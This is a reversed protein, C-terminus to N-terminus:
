AEIRDIHNQKENHEKGTLIIIIKEQLYPKKKWISEQLLPRLHTTNTVFHSPGDRSVEGNPM